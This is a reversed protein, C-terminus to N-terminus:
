QVVAWILGENDRFVLDTRLAQQKWKKPNNGWLLVKAVTKSWDPDNELSWRYFVELKKGAHQM